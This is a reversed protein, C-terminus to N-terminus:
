VYFGIEDSRTRTIRCCIGWFQRSCQLLEIVLLDLLLTWGCGLPHPVQATAYAFEANVASLTRALRHALGASALLRCLHNLPTHAHLELLRWICGVGIATLQGNEAFGEEVLGM